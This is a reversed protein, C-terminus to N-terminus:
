SYGNRTVRDSLSEKKEEKGEKREEHDGLKKWEMEDTGKGERGEGGEVVDGESCSVKAKRNARFSEERDCYYM